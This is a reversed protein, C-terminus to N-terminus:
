IRPDINVKPGRLGDLVPQQARAKRRAIHMKQCRDIM